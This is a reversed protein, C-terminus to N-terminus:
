VFNYSSLAIYYLAQQTFDADHQTAKQFSTIADQHEGMSFQSMGLFFYAAGNEPDRQVAKKLSTISADYRELKFYTM